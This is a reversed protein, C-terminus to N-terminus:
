NLTMSVVEWTQKLKFFFFNEQSFTNLKRWVGPDRRGMAATQDYKTSSKMLTALVSGSRYPATNCFINSSSSASTFLM